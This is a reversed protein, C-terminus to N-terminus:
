LTDKLFQDLTKLEPREQRLSEIDAEYGENEFWRYMAAMEEGMLDEFDDWSMQSFEVPRDLARSFAAATDRMTLEDGALEVARGRWAVPNEFAQRAFGGIDTTAIQQLRTDPGLPQPLAGGRIQEGTFELWNEMFFVPRLITHSLGSGRVHQEVKWKSEFHPIGSDREAGGVSSYVFHEVGAAKAADAFAKGQRVENEFGINPQVSYAGWAGNLARDLSDRDDLDGEVLEAGRQELAKADDQDPDRTLARVQAGAKLLHDAVAGGQHGTAGCVLVLKGKISM